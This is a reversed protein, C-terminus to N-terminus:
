KNLLWRVFEVKGGSPHLCHFNGRAEFRSVFHISEEIKSEVETFNVDHAQTTSKKTCKEEPTPFSQKAFSLPSFLFVVSAQDLASYKM